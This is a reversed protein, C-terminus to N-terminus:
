LHDAGHPPGVGASVIVITVTEGTQATVTESEAAAATPVAPAAALLLTAAAVGLVGRASRVRALSM